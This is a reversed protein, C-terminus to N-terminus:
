DAVAVGVEPMEHNIASTIFLRHCEYDDHGRSRDCMGNPVQQEIVALTNPHDCHITTFLEYTHNAAVVSPRQLLTAEESTNICGEQM